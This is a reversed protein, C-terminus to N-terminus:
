WAICIFVMEYDQGLKSSMLIYVAPLQKGGNPSMVFANITLLQKFPKVVVKFAGDIGRCDFLIITNMM